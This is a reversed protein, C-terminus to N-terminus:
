KYLCKNHTSTQIAEVQRPLEFSYGCCISKIFYIFACHSYDLSWLDLIVLTSLKVLNCSLANIPAHAAILDFVTILFVIIFCPLSSLPSRFGSWLFVLFLVVLRRQTTQVLGSPRQVIAEVM